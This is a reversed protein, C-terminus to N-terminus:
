APDHSYRYNLFFSKWLDNKLLIHASNHVTHKITHFDNQNANGKEWANTRGPCALATLPENLHIYTMACKWTSKDWHDRNALRFERLFM